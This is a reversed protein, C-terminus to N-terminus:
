KKNLILEKSKRKIKRMSRVVLNKVDMRTKVPEYIHKFEEAKCTYQDGNLETILYDGSNGTMSGEITEITMAGTLKVAEVEVPIRRFKPM